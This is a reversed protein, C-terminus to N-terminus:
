RPFNLMALEEVDVYGFRHWPSMTAQLGRVAALLSTQLPCQLNHEARLDFQVGSLVRGSAPNSAGAGARRLWARCLLRWTEHCQDNPAGAAGFGGGPSQVSHQKYCGLLTCHNEQEWMQRFENDDIGGLILTGSNWIRSRRGRSRQFPGFCFHTVARIRQTLPTGLM